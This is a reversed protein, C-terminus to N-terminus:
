QPSRAELGPCTTSHQCVWGEAWWGAVCPSEALCLIRLVHSTPSARPHLLTCPGLQTPHPQGMVDVVQEVEPFRLGVSHSIPGPHKGPSINPTVPAQHSPIPGGACCTQPPAESSGPGGVDLAQFSHLMKLVWLLPQAQLGIGMGASDKEGLARSRGGCMQVAPGQGGALGWGMGGGGQFSPLTVPGLALQEWIHGHGWGKRSSDCAQRGPPPPPTVLFCSCFPLPSKM